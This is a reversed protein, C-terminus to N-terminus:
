VFKLGSCRVDLEEYFEGKELEQVEETPAYINVFTNQKEIKEEGKCRVEQLALLEVSYNRMERAMEEMREKALM